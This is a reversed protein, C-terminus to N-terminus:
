GHVCVFFKLLKLFKEVLNQYEMEDPWHLYYVKLCYKDDVMEMLRLNVFVVFLLDSIVRRQNCAHM